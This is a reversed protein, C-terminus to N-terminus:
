LEERPYEDRPFRVAQGEAEENGPAQFPLLFREESLDFFDQYFTLQPDQNSTNDAQRGPVPDWESPSPGEYNEALQKNALQARIFNKAENFLTLYTPVGRRRRVNDKIVSTVAVIWPDKGNLAKINFQTEHCGTLLIGPVAQLTDLQTSGISSSTTITLNVGKKLNKSITGALWVDTLIGKSTGDDNAALFWGEDDDRTSSGDEDPYTTNRADVYLFSVDGAVASTCLETFKSKFNAITPPDQGLTCKKPGSPPDIDFYLIEVDNSSFGLYNILMDQVKFIGDDTRIKKVGLDRFDTQALSYPAKPDVVGEVNTMELLMSGNSKLITFNYTYYGDGFEATINGDDDVKVARMVTSLVDNGKHTGNHDVTWQRSLIVSQDNAIDRPIILTAMENISYTLWDLKGTFVSTSPIRMTDGYRLSLKVSAHKGNPDTMTLTLSKFDASVYGQFSYYGSESRVGYENTTSTVGTISGNQIHNEKSVGAASISWQWYACIPDKLAFGAPFVITICEDKAYEYWNLKGVYVHM